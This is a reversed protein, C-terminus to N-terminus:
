QDPAIAHYQNIAPNAIRESSGDAWVVEIASVSKAEGLGFHLMSSSQANFRAGRVNAKAQRFGDGAVTVRAGIVSRKSAPNLQVGIWNGVRNLNNELIKIQTTEETNSTEVAILDQKGDMNLDVAITARGDVELSAGMLYAIDVFGMDGFNAWLRNKQFPAWSLLDDKLYKGPGEVLLFRAYGVGLSSERDYLDHRWFTDDYDKATTKSLYGNTLYVDDFGDNNFDVETAGHVWGGSAFPASLEYREFGGAGGLWLRSGSAMIGRNKEVEEYGERAVGSANLRRAHESTRAFAFFDLRGDRNFDSVLQGSGLLRSEPFWDASRNALLTDAEGSYADVGAFNSTMLLDLRGDQNLDVISSGRVNRRARESLGSRGIAEKFKLKGQNLLLYSSLGDNADYFPSPIIGGYYPEMHQGIFLDPAGDGDVDGVTMVNASYLKKPKWILQPKQAFEGSKRNREYVQVGVGRTATVYEREGDMDIDVFLASDIPEPAFHRVMPRPDFKFDGVNRYLRNEKPFLIDPRGDLNFDEVLILSYPSRSDSGSLWEQEEFAPKGTRRFQHLSDFSVTEPLPLGEADEGESWSVSAVGRFSRRYLTHTPGSVNFEFEIKSIAKGDDDIDFAIQRLDVQDLVYGEQVFGNVMTQLQYSKLFQPAGQGTEHVFEFIKEPLRRGNKWKPAEVQGLPYTQLTELPNESERLKDWLDVIRDGYRIAEVQEAWVTEDLQKRSEAIPSLKEPESEQGLLLTHPALFFAGLLYPITDRKFMHSNAASFALIGPSVRM